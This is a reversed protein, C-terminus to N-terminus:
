NPEHHDRLKTGDTSEIARPRAHVIVYFTCDDTRQFTQLDFRAMIRRLWWEAPRQTIHANRGDSLVKLAPGTNVTLVALAETLEELHDLVADVRDEEVHELVDIAVVMEAPVPPTAYKPVCPDYAQYTFRHKIGARKLAEALKLKGGCGYDLLHQVELKNVIEAM